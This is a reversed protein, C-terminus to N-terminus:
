AVASTPAGGEHGRTTVMMWVEFVENAVVLDAGCVQCLGFGQSNLQWAQQQQM